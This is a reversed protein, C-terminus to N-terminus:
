LATTLTCHMIVYMTSLKTAAVYFYEIFSLSSSSQVLSAWHTLQPSLDLDAPQGAGGQHWASGGGLTTRAPQDLGSSPSESIDAVLVSCAPWKCSSTSWSTTTTPPAATQSSAPLLCSSPMSVKAMTGQPSAALSHGWASTPLVRESSCARHEQGPEAKPLSCWGGEDAGEDAGRHAGPVWAADWHM